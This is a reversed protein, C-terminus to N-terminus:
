CLSLEYLGSNGFFVVLGFCLIHSSYTVTSRLASRPSDASQKHEVTNGAGPHAGRADLVYAGCLQQPAHYHVEWIRSNRLINCIVWKNQFLLPWHPFEGVRVSELLSLSVFVSLHRSILLLRSFTLTVRKNDVSQCMPLVAFLSSSFGVLLCSTFTLPYLKLLIFRNQNFFSFRNTGKTPM